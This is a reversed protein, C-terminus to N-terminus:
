CSSDDDWYSTFQDQNRSITGTGVFFVEGGGANQEAAPKGGVGSTVSGWQKWFHLLATTAASAFAIWWRISSSGKLKVLCPETAGYIGFWKTQISLPEMGSSGFTHFDICTEAQIQRGSPRLNKNQCKMAALLLIYCHVTISFMSVTGMLPNKPFCHSATLEPLYFLGAPSCVASSSTPQSWSSQLWSSYVVGTNDALYWYIM